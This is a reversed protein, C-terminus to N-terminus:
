RELLHVGQGIAVVKSNKNKKASGALVFGGVPEKESELGRPRRITEVDAKRWLLTM